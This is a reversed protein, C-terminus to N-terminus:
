IELGKDIPRAGENVNEEGAEEKGIGDWGVMKISNMQSGTSREDLKRELPGPCKDGNM